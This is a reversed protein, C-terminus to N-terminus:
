LLFDFENFQLKPYGQFLVNKLHTTVCVFTLFCFQFNLKRTKFGSKKSHEYDKTLFATTFRINKFFMLLANPSHFTTKNQKKISTVPFHRGSYYCEWLEDAAKCNVGTIVTLQTVCPFYNHTNLFLDQKLMLQLEKQWINICYFLFNKFNTVNERQSSATTESLQTTDNMVFNKSDLCELSAEPKPIM